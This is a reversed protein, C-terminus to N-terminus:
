YKLDIAVRQFIAIFSWLGDDHNNYRDYVCRTLKPRVYLLNSISVMIREPEM